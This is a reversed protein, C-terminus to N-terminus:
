ISSGTRNHATAIIRPVDASGRAGAVIVAGNASASEDSAAYASDCM